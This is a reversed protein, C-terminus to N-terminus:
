ECMVPITITLRAHAEFPDAQNQEGLMFCTTTAKYCCSAHQLNSAVFRARFNLFEPPLRPQGPHSSPSPGTCPDPLPLAMPAHTTCMTPASYILYIVACCSSLIYPKPLQIHPTQSHRSGHSQQARSPPPLQLNLNLPQRTITCNCM